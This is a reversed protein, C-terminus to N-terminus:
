TEILRSWQTGVEVRKVEQEKKKKKSLYSHKRQLYIHASYTYRTGVFIRQFQLQLCNYAVMHHESVQTKQLVLLHKQRRLRLREHSRGSVEQEQFNRYFRM